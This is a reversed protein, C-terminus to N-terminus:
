IQTQKIHFFFLSFLDRLLSCKAAFIKILIKYVIKALNKLSFSFVRMRGFMQYATSVIKALNYVRIPDSMPCIHLFKFLSYIDLCRKHSTFM